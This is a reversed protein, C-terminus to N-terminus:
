YEVEWEVATAEIYEAEVMLLRGESTFHMRRTELVPRRGDLSMGLSRAIEAGPMAITRWRERTTLRGYHGAMAQLVIAREGCPDPRGEVGCLVECPLIRVTVVPVGTARHRHEQTRRAMPARDPVGFLNATVFTAVDRVSTPPAVPELEDGPDSVSRRQTYRSPAQQIYSGKGTETRIVGGARLGKLAERIAHRSYGFQEILEAESPLRTGPQFEGSTFFTRLHAAVEATRSRAASEGRAGRVSEGMATGGGQLRRPEAADRM